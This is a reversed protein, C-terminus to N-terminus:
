THRRGARAALRLTKEVNKLGQEQDDFRKLHEHDVFRLPEVFHKRFLEVRKVPSSAPCSRQWPILGRCSM